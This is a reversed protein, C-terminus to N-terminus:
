RGLLMVFSFVSYRAQLRQFGANRLRKFCAVIKRLGRGVDKSKPTTFSQQMSVKCHRRRGITKPMTDDRCGIENKIIKVRTLYSFRVVAGVCCKNAEKPEQSHDELAGRGLFM